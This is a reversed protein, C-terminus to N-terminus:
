AVPARPEHERAGLNGFRHYDHSVTQEELYRLLEVRGSSVVAAREPFVHAAHCARVVEPEVAGLLRARRVGLGPLRSALVEAPEVVVEGLAAHWPEPAAATIRLTAGCVRAAELVRRADLERAGVGLRVIVGGSVPRYRLLNDQGLLRTPDEPSAFHEAFAAAYDDPPPAGDPTPPDSAEFLQLVYNPGGAKAGPGFVSAKVGGFPQRRVIAGTTGRNVYLCGADMGALWREIERDDLSMLGATLGYSTGNAIALAEDLDAARMVSLVPGFLERQHMRSGPKVGLKVAPHWLEPNHPDCTPPVLWEEGPELTALAWALDGRPPRILPTVKNGLEWASGVPLSLVADRLRIRFAEDDYLAAELVLLSTASCKQGAHSFAAHLAHKIALDHDAMETVILANKGGTEAILHLDPRLDLFRRATATAGTLIVFDVGPHTVLLSGVPENRCPLLQLHTRPVGADWCAEALAHAVAVTEPAPKLIVANGAALAAFVGGAPIALPFNWPPTVLGVGRPRLAVQGQTVHNMTAALSRRYYEAFDIAESVEADGEPVAKGADAVMLAVLEGRRQRLRQAVELLWRAREAWPAPSAAAARAAAIAREAHAPEAMTARYLAHGPRSPDWGPEVDAGLVLEGAIQLPIDFAPADKRQALALEIWGRNHPLSFDTDAENEFRHTPDPRVPPARRDQTRRPGISPVERTRAAHTFRDRELKWSESGVMMGFQHRLFNDPGTNEDLRRILYAIASLLDRDDATPAYIMLDRSVEAVVRQLPGAIGELMEFGSLAEVGRSARLVMAWAIDFLNHSGIGVHAAAAHEPRLAYEVLRKFNADVEPKHRYPAQPWGHLSADVREMALNAGKVLRLRIPKGGGAVRARAFDTLRVQMAHSDPLYAQLVVGAHVDRMEPRALVREFLEVTLHLDRYEEMDLMVWTPRDHRTRAQAYLAAVREGLTALTREWALVDIQSAIASIKVSISDIDPRLLTRLYTAHRARAEDEGLIAEGLHNMNIRFGRGRREALAAELDAPTSPLAVRRVEKRLRELVRPVLLKPFARGLARFGRLQLRDLWGFYTPVGAHQLLHHLQDAVREPRIARLAQDTFATTFLRGAKDEMLRGLRLEESLEARTKDAAALALLGEAVRIAEDIAEDGALERGHLGQLHARLDAITMEM